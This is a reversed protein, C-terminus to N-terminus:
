GCWVTEVNFDLGNERLERIVQERQKESLHYFFVRGSRVELVVEDM